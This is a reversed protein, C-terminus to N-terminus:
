KGLVNKLELKKGIEIKAPNFTAQIKRNLEVVGLDGKNMTSLVQIDDM